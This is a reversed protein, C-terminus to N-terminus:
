LTNRGAELEQAERVHDRYPQTKQIAAMMRIFFGMVSWRKLGNYFTKHPGYRPADINEEARGYPNDKSPKVSLCAGPLECMATM